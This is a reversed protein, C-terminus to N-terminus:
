AHGNPCAGSQLAAGCVGCFQLDAKPKRLVRKLVLWGGALLVSGVLAPVLAAWMSITLRDGAGADPTSSFGDFVRMLGVASAALLVCGAVVALGGLVALWIAVDRRM